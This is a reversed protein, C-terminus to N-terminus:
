VKEYSNRGDAKMNKRNLARMTQAHAEMRQTLQMMDIRNSLECVALLLQDCKKELKSKM